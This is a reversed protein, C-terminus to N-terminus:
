AEGRAERLTTEIRNRLRSLPTKLDHAINDSVEKFGDILEVIRRLMANLSASLEDFEDGSGTLPVRQSLDGAMIIRSTETIASLRRLLHRNMIFAVGFGLLAMGALTWLFATRIIREFERQDEIDRGVILRHGNTLRIVKAFALREGTGGSFASRRYVFM